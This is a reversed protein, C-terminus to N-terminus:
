KGAYFPRQIIVGRMAAWQVIEDITQPGCNRATLLYKFTLKRLLNDSPIWRGKPPNEGALETALEKLVNEARVSLRDPDAIAGVKPIAPTKEPLTGFRANISSLSTRARAPVVAHHASVAENESDTEIRGHWSHRESAKVAKLTRAM